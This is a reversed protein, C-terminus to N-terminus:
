TPTIATSAGSFSPISFTAPQKLKLDTLSLDSWKAGVWARAIAYKKALYKSTHGAQEVQVKKSSM